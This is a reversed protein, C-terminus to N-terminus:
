KQNKHRHLPFQDWAGFLFILNQNFIAYKAHSRFNITINTFYRIVCRNVSHPSHLGRLGRIMKIEPPQVSFPKKERKKKDREAVHFMKKERSWAEDDNVVIIRCYRHTVTKATARVVIFRRLELSFIDRSFYLNNCLKKKWNRIKKEREHAIKRPNNRILSVSIGKKDFKTLYVIDPMINTERVSSYFISAVKKM